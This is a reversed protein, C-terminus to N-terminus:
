RSQWLAKTHTALNSNHGFAELHTYFSLIDASSLPHTLYTSPAAFGAGKEFISHRVEPMGM